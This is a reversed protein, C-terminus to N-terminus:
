GEADRWQAEDALSAPLSLVHAIAVDLDTANRVAKGIAAIADRPPLPLQRLEVASVQTNGNSIRFFRDVIRGNLLAALGIAEDEEPEGDDWRLYNLHNELGIHAGPLQGRLLPAATLRRAEEKASFRRLVVYTRNPLLLHESASSALLHEAKTGRLPWQIHMRRVHQLWLLPVTNGDDGPHNRLFDTARFAVVPGTSVRLGLSSLTEPWKRVLSLVDDDLRNVPIHVYSTGRTRDLVRSLPLTRTEARALDSAGASVSVTVRAARAPVSRRARMIVNEQLVSDARFTERRSSFLHLVEPTATAFLVERFRRFYEGSAFSRPTITVLVGGERLRRTMAILFLAYINPQGHVVEAFRAVRPDERNLKFYPPNSIAIDYPDGDAALLFDERHLNFTCEVGREALWKEASCFTLRAARATEHNLEFADIHVRRVFSPLAECVAAALLGTGTGPDLIRVEEGVGEVALNAMFRAVPLPTFFQGLQRRIDMSAQDGYQQYLDVATQAPTDIIPLSYAYALPGSGLLINDSV